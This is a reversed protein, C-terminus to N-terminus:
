MATHTNIWMCIYNYLYVSTHIAWSKFTIQEECNIVKLIEDKSASTTILQLHPYRNAVTRQVLASLSSKKRICICVVM